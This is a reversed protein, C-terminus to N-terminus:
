VTQGLQVYSSKATPVFVAKINKPEKKIINLFAKGINKNELGNATLIIKKM